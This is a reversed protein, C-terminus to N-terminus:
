VAAVLTEAVIGDRELRAALESFDREHAREARGAELGALRESTATM